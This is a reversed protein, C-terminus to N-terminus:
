LKIVIGLNVMSKGFGVEGNIGLKPTFYYRVGAQFGGFAIPRIRTTNEYYTFALGSGANVGVYIDLKDAHINKSSNDSILQYFHFNAILGFPVNMEGRYYYPNPGWGRGGRGGMGTTFGLGVYKHIGFEMQINFQGTNPWYYRNGHKPHKYDYFYYDDFHFFKSTGIGLALVKSNREWAQAQLSNSTTTLALIVTLAFLIKKM